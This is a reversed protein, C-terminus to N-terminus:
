QVFAYPSRASGPGALGLLSELRRAVAAAIELQRLLAGEPHDRSLSRSRMQMRGSM